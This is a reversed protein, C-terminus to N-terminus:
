GTPQRLVHRYSRWRGLAAVNPQIANKILATDLTEVLPRLILVLFLVITLEGWHDRWFQDPTAGTLLDILRGLYYILAVEALATAASTAMNLAILKRFPHLMVALFAGIRNPPTDNERYSTYPDVLNEFFAFMPRRDIKGRTALDM